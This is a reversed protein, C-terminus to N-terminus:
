ARSDFQRYYTNVGTAWTRAGAIRAMMIHTGKEDPIEELNGPICCEKDGSVVAAVPLAYDLRKILDITPKKVTQITVRNPNGQLDYGYEDCTGPLAIAVVLGRESHRLREILKRIMKINNAKIIYESIESGRIRESDPLSFHLNGCLSLMEAAPVSVDGEEELKMDLGLITRSIVFDTSESREEFTKHGAKAMAINLGLTTWMIDMLSEHATFIGINKGDQLKDAVEQLLEPRDLFPEVMIEKFGPHYKESLDLITDVDIPQSELFVTDLQHLPQQSDYKALQMHPNRDLHSSVIDLLTDFTQKDKSIPLQYTDALETM